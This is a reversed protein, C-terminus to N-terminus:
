CLQRALYECEQKVYELSRFVDGPEQHYKTADGLHACDFGFWWWKRENIVPYTGESMASYTLGGHVDAGFDSYDMGYNTNSPPVEVYGCRHSDHVFLVAARLGPETIWEAEIM